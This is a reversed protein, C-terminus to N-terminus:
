NRRGYPSRRVRRSIPADLIEKMIFAERLQSATYRPQSVRQPAALVQAAEAAQRARDAEHLRDLEGFDMMTKEARAPGHFGPAHVEKGEPSAYALSGSPKTRRPPKKSPLVPRREPAAAPSVPHAKAAPRPAGEKPLDFEVQITGPASTEEARPAPPTPPTPPTPPPTKKKNKNNAKNVAGVVAIVVVIVAFLSELMDGM